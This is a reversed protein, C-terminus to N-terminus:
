RLVGGGTRSVWIILIVILVLVGVFIGALVRM